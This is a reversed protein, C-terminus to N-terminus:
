VRELHLNIHLVTAVLRLDSAVPNELALLQLVDGEIKLHAADVDDDGAIVDDCLSANATELAELSEQFLHRVSTGLRLIENELDRLENDFHERTRM